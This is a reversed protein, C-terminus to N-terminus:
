YDYDYNPDKMRETRIFEAMDNTVHHGLTYRAEEGRCVARPHHTNYDCVEDFIIQPDRTDGESMCIAVHLHCCDAVCNGAYTDKIWQDWREKWNLTRGEKLAADVQKLASATKPPATEVRLPQGPRLVETTVKPVDKQKPKAM